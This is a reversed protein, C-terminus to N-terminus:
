ADIDIEKIRREMSEMTDFQGMDLWANEGIPYIGIKEGKSKMRDIIDPMDIKEGQQVYQFVDSELIYYGTNTFLCSLNKMM